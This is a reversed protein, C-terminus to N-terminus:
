RAVGLEDLLAAANQRDAPAEAEDRRLAMAEGILKPAGPCSPRADATAGPELQAGWCIPGRGHQVGQAVEHVLTADSVLLRLARRAAAADAAQLKGALFPVPQRLVQEDGGFAMLDAAPCRVLANGAAAALRPGGEGLAFRAVQGLTEECRPTSRATSLDCCVYDREMFRTMVDGRELARKSQRPVLVLALAGLGLLLLLAAIM